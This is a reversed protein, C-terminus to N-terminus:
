RIDFVTDSVTPKVNPREKNVYINARRYPSNSGTNETSYTTTSSSFPPYRHYSRHFYGGKPDLFNFELTNILLFSREPRLFGGNQAIYGGKPCKRRGGGTVSSLMPNRHKNFNYVNAVTCYRQYVM